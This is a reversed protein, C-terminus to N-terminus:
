LLMMYKKLVQQDNVVVTGSCARCTNNSSSSGSTNSTINQLVPTNLSIYYMLLGGLIFAVFLYIVQNIRNKDKM